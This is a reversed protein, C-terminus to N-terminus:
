IGVRYEFEHLVSEYNGLLWTLKHSKDL